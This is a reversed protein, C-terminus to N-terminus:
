TTHWNRCRNPQAVFKRLRPATCLSFVTSHASISPKGFGKSHFFHTSVTASTGCRGIKVRLRRWNCSMGEKVRESLRALWTKEGPDRDLSCRRLHRFMDGDCFNTAGLYEERVARKCEESLDLCDQRWPARVSDPIGRYVYRGFICRSDVLRRFTSSLNKSRQSSSSWASLCTEQWEQCSYVWTGAWEGRIEYPLRQCACTCPTSDQTPPM